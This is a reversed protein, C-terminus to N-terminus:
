GKEKKGKNAKRTKEEKKGKEKREQDACPCIYRNYIYVEWFRKLDKEGQVWIYIDLVNSFCCFFSIKKIHNKQQEKEREKRKTQEAPENYIKM